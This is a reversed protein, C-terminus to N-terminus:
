NKRWLGCPQQRRTSRRRQPLGDPASGSPGRPFPAWPKTPLPPATCAAAPLSVTSRSWASPWREMTGMGSTWPSSGPVSLASLGWGDFDIDWHGATQAADLVFPISRERCLRGVAAADQVAGSVNSGHAMVLLRTNPRVLPPISSLDLRGSEDCPIRDFSVRQASLDQLPRMVANHEMSSVLCHDGPRLWGRLVMNLGMTNGATLVCHTPDSHRFLRCLNERLQLTTM